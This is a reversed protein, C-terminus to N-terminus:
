TSLDICGLKGELVYFYKWKGGRGKWNKLDFENGKSGIYTKIAKQEKYWHIPKNPECCEPDDDSIHFYVEGRGYITAMGSEEVCLATAEDIGIGKICTLNFNNRM